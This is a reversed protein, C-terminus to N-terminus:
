ESARFNIGVELPESGLESPFLPLPNAKRIARVASQDYYINGSKREVWFEEITGTPTIRIGIVTVLGSRATAVGEPVIWSARIQSWIRDYYARFRLDSPQSAGGALSSGAASTREVPEEPVSIDTSSTTERSVSFEEFLKQARMELERIRKKRDLEVAEDGVSSDSIKLKKPPIVQETKEVVAKPRKTKLAPITSAKDKKNPVSKRAAPLSVLDVTYSPTYTTGSMRFLTMTGLLIILAVHIGLSFIFFRKFAKERFHHAKERGYFITGQFLM